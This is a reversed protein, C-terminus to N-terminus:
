TGGQIDVQMEKELMYEVNINQHTYINSAVQESQQKVHYLTIDFQSNPEIRIFYM